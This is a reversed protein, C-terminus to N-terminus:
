CIVLRPHGPRFFRHRGFWRAYSLRHHRKSCSAFRPGVCPVNTPALVDCISGPSRSQKSTQGAGRQQAHKAWRTEVFPMGDRVQIHATNVDNNLRARSCFLATAHKDFTQSEDLFRPCSRPASIDSGHHARLRRGDREPSQALTAGFSSRETATVSEYRAAARMFQACNKEPLLFLVTYVSVTTDIDIQSLRRANSLKSVLLAGPCQHSAV